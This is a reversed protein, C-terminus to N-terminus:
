KILYHVQSILIITATAWPLEKTSCCIILNTFLIKMIIESDFCVTVSFVFNQDVAQHQLLAFCNKQYFFTEMFTHLLVPASLSSGQNFIEWNLSIFKRNGNGNVYFVFTVKV